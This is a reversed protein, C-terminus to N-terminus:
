KKLLAGLSEGRLGFEYFEAIEDAALARSWFAADDLTGPFPPSKDAESVGIRLATDSYIEKETTLKGVAVQEGNHFLRLQKAERDFVIMAHHWQGDRMSGLGGSKVEFKEGPAAAWGGLSDSSATFNWGTADGASFLTGRASGTAEPGFRFWISATASGTGLAFDEPAGFKPEFTGDVLLCEKFQGTHAYGAVGFSRGTVRNSGGAASLSADLPWYSQLAIGVPTKSAGLPAGGPPKFRDIAKMIALACLTLTVVWGVLHAILRKTKKPPAAAELEDAKAVAPRAGTAAAAPVQLRTTPPAGEAPDLEVTKLARTKPKREGEAAPARLKVPPAPAAASDGEGTQGPLVLKRPQPNFAAESVIPVRRMDHQVEVPVSKETATGDDVTLFFPMIKLGSAALDKRYGAVDFEVRRFFVGRTASDFIVYRARIDEPNRPEGVSGVNIIYRRDGRLVQDTDPLQAVVGDAGASFVTPHHTHGIFTVRKDTALLQQAAMAADEIYDFRGPMEIEAHVFLIDESEMTMPVEKLFELSEATMRARTWEIVERAHDNFLNADLRGCAAADHNGLVFNVTNKRVADLVVQPRPGYGIVDGLCVLVQAGNARMDRFVAALAQRNAHIDSFIAYRM